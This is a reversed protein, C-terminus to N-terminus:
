LFRSLKFTLSISSHSRPMVEFAVLSVGHRICEPTQTPNLSKSRVRPALTLRAGFVSM